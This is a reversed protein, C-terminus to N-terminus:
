SLHALVDDETPEQHEAAVSLNVSAEPQCTSSIYARYAQQERYKKQCYFIHLKLNLVNYLERSFKKEQDSYLEPLETVL